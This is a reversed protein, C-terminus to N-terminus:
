DEDEGEERVHLGDGGNDAARTDVIRADYDKPMSIGHRRNNSFDCGVITPGSPKPTAATTGSLLKAKAARRKNRLYSVIALSYCVAAAILLWIAYKAFVIGAVTIVLGTGFAALTEAKWM